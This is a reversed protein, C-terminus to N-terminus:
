KMSQIKLKGIDCILHTKGTEFQFERLFVHSLCKTQYVQQCTKTYKNYLYCFYM